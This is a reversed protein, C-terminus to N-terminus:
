HKHPASGFGLLGRQPNKEGLNQDRSDDPPHQLTGEDEQHLALPQHVEEQAKEHTYEKIIHLLVTRTGDRLVTYLPIVPVQYEPLEFYIGRIFQWPIKQQKMDMWVKKTLISTEVENFVRERWEETAIIKVSGRGKTKWPTKDKKLHRLYKIITPRSCGVRAATRELNGEEAYIQELDQQTLGTRELLNKNAM